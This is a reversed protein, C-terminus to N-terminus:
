PEGGKAAVADVQAGNVQLAFDVWPGERQKGCEVRQLGGENKHIFYVADSYQLISSSGKFWEHVHRRGPEGKAIESACHFTTGHELSIDKVGQMLAELEDHRYERNEVRVAQLPDVVVVTALKAVKGVAELTLPGSLFRLREAGDQLWQKAAQLRAEDGERPNQLAENGLGSQMLLLRRLMARPSMEGLLYAVDNGQEAYGRALKLLFRSKGASPEGGWIVKAGVEVAGFPQARDFAVIGSPRVKPPKLADPDALLAQLTVTGPPWGDQSDEAADSPPDPQPQAFAADALVQLEHFAADTGGGHRDRVWEVVDHGTGPPLGPLELVRVQAGHAAALAAVDHAYKAGSADADPLVVVERGALAKWCTKAAAQAGGSSTTACVGLSHLLDACKEGEAVFVRKWQKLEQLLYPPRDGPPWRPQWRGGIRWVPRVQKGGDGDDFRLVVGVPVGDEDAYVYRASETGLQRRVYKAAAEATDFGDADSPRAAYPPVSAVARSPPEAANMPGAKLALMPLGLAAVVSEVTCGARCKLLCRGDEGPDVALSPKADDHAPCQAVFGRRTPKVVRGHAKLAGVIRWVAEPASM